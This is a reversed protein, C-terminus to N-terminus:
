IIEIYSELNEFANENIQYKVDADPAEGKFFKRIGQDEQIFQNGEEKADDALVQRIGKYDEYFYEQLLPIIANKFIRGLCQVSPDDKLPVFYAHGITHERDYLIEIRENMVRLMEAVDLGEVLVTGSTPSLLGTVIKM